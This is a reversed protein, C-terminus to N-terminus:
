LSLIESKLESILVIDKMGPEREVKSNVDIAHLNLNGLDKLAGVNSISIGGSLFFPIEQYDWLGHIHQFSWM